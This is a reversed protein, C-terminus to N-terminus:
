GLQGSVQEIRKRAARNRGARRRPPREEIRFGGAQRASRAGASEQYTDARDLWRAEPQALEEHAIVAVFRRQQPAQGLM